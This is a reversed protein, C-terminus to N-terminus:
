EEQTSAAFGFLKTRYTEGTKMGEHGNCYEEVRIDITAVSEVAATVKASSAKTCEELCPTWEPDYTAYKVCEVEECYKMKDDGNPQCKGELLVSAM